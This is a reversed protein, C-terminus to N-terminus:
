DASQFRQRRLRTGIRPGPFIVMIQTGPFHPRSNLKVWAGHLVAIERVIALGLGAGRGKHAQSPARYFAEFVQQADQEQIGVGNDEVALSPPNANIRISLQNNGGVGYNLANDLLNSLLEGLLIPDADIWVPQDPAILQLQMGKERANALWEGGTNRSWECLDLRELSDRPSTSADARALVLLQEGLRIMRDSIRKIREARTRVDLPLDQALMLESELRLSSLPTRFQHAAHGIFRKQAQWTDDLQALLTNVHLVLPLVEQPVGSVNLPNLTEDEDRETIQEALDHIAALGSRVGRVLVWTFLGVLILQTLAMTWFIDRLMWEEIQMKRTLVWTVALDLIVLMVIPPMLRVVLHRSLSNQQWFAPIGKRKNTIM